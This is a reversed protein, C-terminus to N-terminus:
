NLEFTDMFSRVFSTFKSIKIHDGRLYYKNKSEIMKNFLHINPYGRLRHMSSLTGKMTIKGQEKDKYFLNITIETLEEKKTFTERIRISGKGLHAKSNGFADVNDCEIIIELGNSVEKAVLQIDEFSEPFNGSTGAERLRQTKMLQNSIRITLSPDQKDLFNGSDYIDTVSIEFLSLSQILPSSVELMKDEAEKRKLKMLKEENIVVNDKNENNNDNDNDNHKNEEIDDNSDNNGIDGISKEDFIKDLVSIMLSNVDQIQLILKMTIKRKMYVSIIFDTENITGWTLIRKYSFKFLQDYTDANMIVIDNPDVQVIVDSPIYKIDNDNNNNDNNNDNNDTDKTNISASLTALNMITITTNTNTITINYYTIITTITTSSLNGVEENNLLKVHFTKNTDKPREKQHSKQHKAVWGGM